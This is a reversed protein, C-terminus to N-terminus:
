LLKNLHPFIRHVPIRYDEDVVLEGSVVVPVDGICKERCKCPRESFIKRGKLLILSFIYKKTQQILINKFWVWVKLDSETHMLPTPLQIKFSRLVKGLMEETPSTDCNEDSPFWKLVQKWLDFVLAQMWHLQSM